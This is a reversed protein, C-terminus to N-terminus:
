EINTLREIWCERTISTVNKRKNILSCSKISWWGRRNRLGSGTTRKVGSAQCFNMSTRKITKVRCISSIFNFASNIALFLCSITIFQYLKLSIKYFNNTFYQLIPFTPLRRIRWSFAQLSSIMILNTQSFPRTQCFAKLVRQFYKSFLNFSKKAISNTM